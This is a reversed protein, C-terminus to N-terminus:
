DGEEKDPMQLHWQLKQLDEPTDLDLHGKAFPVFALQDHYAQLLRKAGAHDPLEHLLPWWTRDFYAPVGFQGNAYWCASILHDSSKGAMLLANFVSSSIFPQDCVSVIVSQASTFEKEVQALGFKLSSGMGNEWAEHYCVTLQPLLRGIAARHATAQAGLVVVVADAKSQMAALLTRHLLSKGDLEVLQKSQGLRSSNGAALIVIVNKAKSPTM